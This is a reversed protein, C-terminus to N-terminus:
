YLDRFFLQPEYGADRIRKLIREKIDRGGPELFEDTPSTFFLRRKFTM